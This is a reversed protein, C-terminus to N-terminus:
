TKGEVSRKMEATIPRSAEAFGQWPDERLSSLRRRLNEITYRDSRLAANLEDWRVPVAVPAGERARVGYSAIATAGRGNRLYDIFIRGERKAKSMNATLRQPEQEAHRQAVAKAFDRVEDWGAKPELPVVLHLGKGGTTRVFSQLGLAELRERLTGAVRLIEQWKVEPAPDLDFVMNDPREIDGIRSGWPHIELAGAQVLAVLDAATKVYVYEASGEKETIEVRPVSAPIAVRPHKQFFCEKTRGEPCRVLSLPRERLHPLIWDQIDDYYRALDLKTLGQEPYLVRDAHTLRVGLLEANSATGSSPTQSTKKDSETSRSAPKGQDRSMRIEEPERDERLGRFAPHRLRGDRTRETFEVEIVLEPRVWHVSRADPVPGNFPSKEVDLERLTAHLEDLQRASFGTGVRGAYNFGGNAEFAGMLLSGFGSRSGGPDTYGGVVFEEYNACKVKVWQKSRGPHYLSSGRKCVIGELSLRCSQEFFAQGQTDIHDSYRVSSNKGGKKDGHGTAGVVGSADLLQSLVQKREILAVQTLDYGELHLLDFAQYVLGATKGRSLAEQLRRFSSTGDRALAVVEGDILAHEVPLQSLTDALEPFRHTWDKANRTILRVEGRELRAMIRYGDFKIEHLWDKGKPVERVLTALQPHIAASKALPQKRAGKLLSPDPSEPSEAAGHKTWTNDRDEAIQAMSRGSVVSRDDDVSVTSGKHKGDDHRKILLWNKGSKDQQRRGSMRTLTWAGNLKEGEFVIDFRDKGPKGTSSWRGRDWLMVTGGGYAKEPIVGEFDAYELPHDEVQVALRKEGPELSPGKPLAWSKLVGDQELRLDFHDHSAAHKHIVFLSGSPSDGREDGAPEATRKFDRKRRYEKLKEM